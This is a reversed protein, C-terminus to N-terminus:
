LTDGAVFTTKLMKKQNQATVGYKYHELVLEIAMSGIKYFDQKVSSITQGEYENAFGDFGAIKVDDPVRINQKKLASLLKKACEDNYCWLVDPLQKNEIEIDDTKGVCNIFSVDLGNKEFIAVAERTRSLYHYIFAPNSKDPYSYIGIKKAGARKIENCLESIGPAVDAGVSGIHPKNSYGAVFVQPVGTYNLIKELVNDNALGRDGLHIIGSSKACHTAIFEDVIKDPTGPPPPNLMMTSVGLETARDFMGKIYEMALPRTSYLSFKEPLIIGIVPFAGQLQKRATSAVSLSKDANKIVLEKELLYEYARHVTLRNIEFQKVLTRESPLVYNENPSLARLQKLLEDALQLHLAVPSTKDLKFQTLELYKKM